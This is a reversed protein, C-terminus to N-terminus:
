TTIRAIELPDCDLAKALQQITSIRARRVGRELYSITSVDLGSRIALDRQTLARQMRRYRISGPNLELTMEDPANEQSNTEM